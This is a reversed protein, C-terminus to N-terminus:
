NGKLESKRWLKKWDVFPSLHEKFHLHLALTPIPSLMYAGGAGRYPAMWIVNTTNDRNVFQNEDYHTIKEFLFWYRELINKSCLFTSTSNSVTRWHRRSGLTMFCPINNKYAQVYNDINDYPFLAIEHSNLKAKFIGYDCLMEPVCMPDHLYDDEVFFLYDRGESKAWEYCAKLSNGNGRETTGIIETPYKCKGVLSKISKIGEKSSHDDVVILRLDADTLNISTILSNICRLIVDLKSFRPGVVRQDKGVSAHVTYVSDCTRLIVDCKM